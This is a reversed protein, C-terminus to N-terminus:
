IQTLFGIRLNLPGKGRNMPDPHSKREQITEWMFEAM